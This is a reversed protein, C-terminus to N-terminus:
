SGAARSANFCNTIRWQCWLIEIDTRADEDHVSARFLAAKGVPVLCEDGTWFFIPFIIVIRSFLSNIQHSLMGEPSGLLQSRLVDTSLLALANRALLPCVSRDHPSCRFGPHATHLIILHYQLLTTMSSTLPHRTKGFSQSIWIGLMDLQLLKKYISEGKDLNMFLHYFFSGIWPSVAGILHCWSLFAALPGQSGWPLLGPVTVLIYVIPLGPVRDDLQCKNESKM